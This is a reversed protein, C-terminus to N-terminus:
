ADHELDIIRLQPFLFTTHLKLISVISMVFCLLISTIIVKRSQYDWIRVTEHTSGTYLKDSGSLFAITSVVQENLLVLIWGDVGLVGFCV